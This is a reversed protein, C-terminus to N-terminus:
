MGASTIYPKRNAPMVVRCTTASPAARDPPEMPLPSWSRSRPMSRRMRRRSKRLPTAMPTPVAATPKEGRGGSARLRLAGRRGGVRIRRSAEAQAPLVGRRDLAKGREVAPGVRRKGADVDVRLFGVVQDDDAAAQGAQRRRVEPLLREAGTLPHQDEVVVVVEAAM